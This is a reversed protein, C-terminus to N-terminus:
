ADRVPTLLRQWEQLLKRVGDSWSGPTPPTMLDAPPAPRQPPAVPPPAQPPLSASCAALSTVLAALMPACARRTKQTPM